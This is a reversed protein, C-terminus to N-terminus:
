KCKEDLLEVIKAIESTKIMYLRDDNVLINLQFQNYSISIINEFLLEEM